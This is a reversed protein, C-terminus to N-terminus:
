GPASKRAVGAIVYRWAEPTLPECLLRDITGLVQRQRESWGFRGIVGLTTYDFTAFPSLLAAMESPRVYHWGKRSWGFRNRFFSHLKTGAANEAFWLEGGPKLARHINLIATRQLDSADRGGMGFFGLLSKFAVLDFAATYPIDLVDIKEYRIADTVGHEAHLRRMTASPEELGSCVVDFGKAALWLSIGGNNADAGVELANAAGTGLESHTEWVSLCRAWNEVDWGISDQILKARAMDHSSRKGVKPGQGTTSRPHLNTVSDGDRGKNRLACYCFIARRCCSRVPRTRPVVLGGQAEDLPPPACDVASEALPGRSFDAFATIEDKADRLMTAM